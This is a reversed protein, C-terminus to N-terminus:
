GTNKQQKINTEKRQAQINFKAQIQNGKDQTSQHLKSNLIKFIFMLFSFYLFLPGTPFGKTLVESTSSWKIGVLFIELFQQFMFM